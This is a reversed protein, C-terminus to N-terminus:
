GATRRHWGTSRVSANKKAAFDPDPSEKWTKTRQFSFGQDRLIRGLTTAHLEKVVGCRVLHAALRAHHCAAGQGGRLAGSPGGAEPPVVRHVAPGPRAAAHGRGGPHRQGRGACVEVAPRVGEATAAGRLRRYQVAADVSACVRRPSVVARCHSAGADGAGLLRRGTRAAFVGGDEDDELGADAASGGRADTRSCVSM